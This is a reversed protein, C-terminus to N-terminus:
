TTLVHQVFDLFTSSDSKDKPSKGSLSTKLKELFTIGPHWSHQFTIWDPSNRYFEACLRMEPLLEEDLSQNQKTSYKLSMPVGVDSLYGEPPPMAMYMQQSSETHLSGANYPSNIIAVCPYYTSSKNNKMQLQYSMQCEIDRVSPEPQCYPHSHYWGVLMMGKNCMRLRIEEEVLPASHSDGLRCRCPFAQLISLHQCAPDWKGGFYGVVESTTLHCHFDMLLLANTSMTVSYPQLKGLSAFTECKVLQKKDLHKGMDMLKSHKVPTNHCRDNAEQPKEVEPSARSQAPKLSLNLAEEQEGMFCLNSTETVTSTVGVNTEVKKPKTTLDLVFNDEAVVEKKIESLDPVNLSSGPGVASSICSDSVALKTAVDTVLDLQSHQFQEAPPDTMDSPFDDKQCSDLSDSVQSSAPSQSGPINPKRPRQQRFWSTKWTDLKRGKYKVSAWGCGSKKAPNVLKKCFIAWSSPSGFIQGTENSKIKGNPLLDATFKQGLYELSLVGEGAQIMGDAMLMQITVGRGTIAHRARKEPTSQEVGLEECGEELDDCTEEESSM